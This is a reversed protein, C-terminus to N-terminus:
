SIFVAFVFKPGWLSLISNKIFPVLSLVCPDCPSCLTESINIFSASSQRIFSFVPTNGVRNSSSKKELSSTLLLSFITSKSIDRSVFDPSGKCVIIVVVSMIFISCEPMKFLLLLILVCRNSFFQFM